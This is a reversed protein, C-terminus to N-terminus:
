TSFSTQKSMQTEMERREGKRMKIPLKPECVRFSQETGSGENQFSWRL